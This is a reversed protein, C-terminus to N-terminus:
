DEEICDAPLDQTLWINIQAGMNIFGDALFPPDQKYVYSTNRDVVTADEFIQGINLNYSSVLFDAADYGMCILNPINMENTRRETIVFELTAGEQVKFGNKIDNDTVKEGDYILYLISNEAQKRDYVYEKIKAKIGHRIELRRSYQEFDYSSESLMPLLITKPEGTVTVYIKRGEKVRSLPKPNQNIILGSPKGEMWASDIVEFRFGKNEGKKEADSIHMATFDDVQVSEGHNTYCRLWWNTMFFLLIFLGVMKAFNTLFIGSTLFLKIEKLISKIRDM